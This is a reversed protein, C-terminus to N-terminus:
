RDVKFFGLSAADVIEEDASVVGGQMQKESSINPSTNGKLRFLLFYLVKMILSNAIVVFILTGSEEPWAPSFVSYGPEQAVNLFDRPM